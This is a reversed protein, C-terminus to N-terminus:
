AGKGMITLGCRFMQGTRRSFGGKTLRENPLDRMPNRQLNEVLKNQSAVSGTNNTWTPHTLQM